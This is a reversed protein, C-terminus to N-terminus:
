SNPDGRGHVSEYDMRNIDKDLKEWPLSWCRQVYQRYESDYRIYRKIFRYVAFMGVAIVIFCWPVSVTWLRIVGAVTVILTPLVMALCFRAFNRYRFIEAVHYTTHKEIVWMYADRFIPTDEEWWSKDKPLHNRLIYTAGYMVQGLFYAALIAFISTSVKGFQEVKIFSSGFVLLFAALTVGGPVLYFLFDRLGFHPTKSEITAM